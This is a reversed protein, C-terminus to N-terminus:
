KEDSPPPKFMSSIGSIIGFTGMLIGVMTVILFLVHLATSQMVLSVFFGGGVGILTVIFGLFGLKLSSNSAKETKPEM